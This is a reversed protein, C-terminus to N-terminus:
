NGFDIEQAGFYESNIFVEFKQVGFGELIIELPSDEKTHTQQYVVQRQDELVREVAVSLMGEQDPLEITMQARGTVPSGNDDPLTTPETVEEPGISVIISVATGKEVETGVPYSQYSVIDKAYESSSRFSINGVSFGKSLLIKEAETVIEGIVSPMLAYEVEQGKSLVYTVVDGEKTLVGSDPNQRIVLGWPVTESFEYTIEGGQLGSENLLVLAENSYKHVLDPVEIMKEGLSIIVELPFGEKLKEGARINQSMIQGETFDSNYIRDKVIFELGLNEITNQATIEDVGSLDPVEVEAVSLYDEIFSIAAFALVLTLALASVIALISYKLKSKDEEIVYDDDYADIKDETSNNNQITMAKVKDNDSKSKNNKNYGKNLQTKGISNISSTELLFRNLAELKEGEMSQNSSEALFIEKNTKFKMLDSIIANASNYRLTQKKNTCKLVIEDLFNPIENNISSPPPIQENVHKLAITIASDGKFPVEGTLMEFFVIGLSYIDSKEDIYGGRAQEPSFYNVSGLTNDSNTMTKNSVARAIGFDAVKVQNNKDILINHPKIDRHIIGNSHAHDLAECIQICIDVATDISLGKNQQILEHLTIGELYEMVIYYIGDDVGTDYVNVINKHNLRAASTSEQKFKNIFDPDNVFEKKLVKVAVYRNLVNCKAKYVQAMGGSGVEEIIEYRGNLIEKM